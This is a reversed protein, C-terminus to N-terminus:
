NQTVRGRNKFILQHKMEMEMAAMMEGTLEDAQKTSRFAVSSVFEDVGWIKMLGTM